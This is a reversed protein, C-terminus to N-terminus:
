APPFGFENQTERRDRRLRSGPLTRGDADFGGRLDNM